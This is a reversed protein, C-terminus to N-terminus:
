RRVGDAAQPWDWYHLTRPDGRDLAADDWRALQRLAERGPLRLRAADLGVRNHHWGRELDGTAFTRNAYKEVAHAQSRVMYHRLVFSEPAVRLGEGSLVHGGSAINDFGADRRWARMLRLPRPEFFYYHLSDHKLDPAEGGAPDPLFVFEDFNIVNFGGSALRAIGQLLSEGSKRTHMWEDADAHIVWDHELGAIMEAKAALQASQDYVGEWPLSALRVLGRGVFERLIAGSGDTSGHDIVAVDIGQNVFDGLCRRLHPAEDHVCLVAACRITM